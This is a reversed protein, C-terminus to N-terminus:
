RKTEGPLQTSSQHCLEELHYNVTLYGKGCFRAGKKGEYGKKTVGHDSTIMTPGPLVLNGGGEKEGKKKKSGVINRRCHFGLDM